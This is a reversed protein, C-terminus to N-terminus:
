RGSAIGEAAGTKGSLFDAADMATEAPIEEMPIHGAKDYIILKASPLDRKWNATMEETPIWVDRGGWMILTPQKIESIELPMRGNMEQVFQFFERIAERNGERLLLEHYQNITEDTVKEPEGYTCRVNNAVIFRPTVWTSIKGIVPMTFAKIPFPPDQPYAAPDLLILREVKDPYALAMNWAFYGGLSNGALNYKKIGLAETFDNIFKLYNERSYSFAPKGTLGFPPIDLRIVRYQSKLKETWGDWTQLSALIGHLLVLPEGQGEDRYHVRTGNIEVFKSETNAYRAELEAPAINKMGLSSCGQLILMSLIVLTYFWRGSNNITSNKESSIM